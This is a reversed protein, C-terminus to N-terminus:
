GPRNLTLFISILLDLLILFINAHIAAPAKSCAALMKPVAAAALV